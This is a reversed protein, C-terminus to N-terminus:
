QLENTKIEKSKPNPNSINKGSKKKNSNNIKVACGDALLGLRPIHYPGM